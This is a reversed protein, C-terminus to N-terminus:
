RISDEVINKAIHMPTHIAQNFKDIDESSPYNIMNMKLIKDMYQKTEYSTNSHYIYYRVSALTARQIEDIEEDRSKSFMLAIVFIGFLAGVILSIFIAVIM